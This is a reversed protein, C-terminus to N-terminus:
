EGRIWEDVNRELVELPLAGNKLVVDHFERVDFKDGLAGKARARLAKIKLEGVKYALAQGPWSIYRDVENDVDLETKASNELLYDIAQQRTWHKAHIGTDIVLRCARWIEYTLQGFKLYPDDYLGLEDGLSESYLAWGEVYATYSGSGYRRFNPLGSQEFAIAFQFHHGPVSEHLALAMMEYKPRMQPRYLNVCFTGARSGDAALPLYYAASTHPAANAPIPEVGYPMRPLTKFLKVLTPDIRKAQARYGELLEEPTRYYFKPDHRLSEFFEQRTGKWGVQDIVKQMEGSIRAVERLGLEHIEEPTMATTTFTRALFAYTADGSPWQWVGAADSCAPLYEKRFYEEFRRYAPVVAERIAASAAAGLREREGAPIGAPFKKLPLYFPSETPDDVMQRALQGPVGALTAKCPTRKEAVGLRMLAMTQEIVTPVGRLRQIWDEYDKVTEFRLSETVNDLLQVGERQSVPATWLRLPYSDLALQTEYKALDLNVREAPPLEARHFDELKKLFGRDHALQRERNEASLDDWRDNARRDGLESAWVPSHDMAYEWEEALLTRLRATEDARISQTVGGCLLVTLLVPFSSAKM